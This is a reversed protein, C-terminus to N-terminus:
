LTNTALLLGTNLKMRSIRALAGGIALRCPRTQKLLNLEIVEGCGCPCIMAAAWINDGEGALYVKGPELHDPFEEMRVARWPKLKRSHWLGVLQRPIQTVTTWLRSFMVRIGNM